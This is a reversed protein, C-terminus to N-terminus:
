PRWEARYEPHGAYPQALLRLTEVALTVALAEPDDKLAGFEGYRSLDRDGVVEVCWDIIRRKAAVDIMVVDPEEIQPECGQDEATMQRLDLIRREWDDLRARLFTVLDAM